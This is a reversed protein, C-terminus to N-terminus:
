ADDKRKYFIFVLSFFYLAITFEQEIYEPDETGHEVFSIGFTYYASSFNKVELRFEFEEVGICGIVFPYVTFLTLIFLALM